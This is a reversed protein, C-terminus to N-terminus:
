MLFIPGGTFQPNSGGVVSYNPSQTSPLLKRISKTFEEYTGGFKGNSWTRILAGTFKGNFAGDQSLQNDQCGSILVVTCEPAPPPAPRDLLEDYFARNDEYARYQIEPPMLRYGATPDVDGARSLLISNTLAVAKTVTGSHCSDSFVAIRVGPRFSAWLRYLEDDILQGDYLCWTEDLGDDEEDSTDPLQGGHGSYSLILTDGAHMAAALASLRSFVAERTAQRTLLVEHRFGRSGCIKQMSIADAECARLPGSWGDYHSPDVSNLGIHLSYGITM